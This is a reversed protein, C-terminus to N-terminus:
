RRANGDEEPLGATGLIVETPSAKMVPPTTTNKVEIPEQAAPDAAAPIQGGDEERDDVV